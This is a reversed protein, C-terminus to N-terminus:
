AFISHDSCNKFCPVWQLNRCILYTCSLSYSVAGYKIWILWFKVHSQKNIERFKGSSFRSNNQESMRFLKLNLEPLNPSINLWRLRYWLHWNFIPSLFRCSCTLFFYLHKSKTTIFSINWKDNHYNPSSRRKFSKTRPFGLHPLAPVFLFLRVSLELM